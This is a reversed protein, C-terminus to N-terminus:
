RIDESDGGERNMNSYILEAIMFEHPNDVDVSEIDSIFFPYFNKGLINKREVMVERPVINIAFNLAYYDPL